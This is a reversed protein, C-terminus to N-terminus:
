SARELVLGGVRDVHARWRNEVVTVTHSEVILCPGAAHEQPTLQEREFVPAEVWASGDWFSQALRPAPRTREGASAEACARPTQSTEAAVSRMALRLSEVEPIRSEPLYGYRALYGKEFAAVLESESGPGSSDESWGVALTSEQGQYRLFVTRPGAEIASEAVGEQELAARAEASMAEFMDGLRVAVEALSELVQREAWRELRGENLGLASLLAGDEPILVRRIGLLEAVAAAHQAGAGGFAVLTYESPDYGRRISIARIAGAMRENALALFGTLFADRDTAADAPAGSADGFDAFGGVADAGVEGARQAAAKSDIRFPFRSPVLRGLLLNVDTLTLPGGRGYCAPGPEAGASEPGVRVRGDKFACISGGGAAVTEVAISPSLLRVPGVVTENRLELEGDFRSVDTSTGGMDFALIREYASRRGAAVAGVAGAAPGSLLSDKPRYEAARVLGGASTMVHLSRPELRGTVGELYSGLIEALYADVLATQARPVIRIRRSLDSSRSVHRFGAAALTRAARDEHSSNRFSHMFAIAASHFGAGVLREAEAALSREDLERLVTGSSNLREEVEVVVAYLPEPKRIDLAFLEPRQQNGIELLDGFGRTVFMAVRAGKRELLANTGQTTALRLAVPPLTRGPPTGTIWRIAVVAADEPSQLVVEAGVAVVAGPAVGAVSVPEALELRNGVSGAIEIAEGAVAMTWGEFFGDVFNQSGALVVAHPSPREGIVMRLAGSSLVKARFQRGEPDVGLCDTFTGGTDVAIRWAPEGAM